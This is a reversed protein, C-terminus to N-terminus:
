LPIISSVVANIALNDGELIAAILQDANLSSLVIALISTLTLTLHYTCSTLYDIRIDADAYVDEDEDEGMILMLIQILMLILILKLMLILM